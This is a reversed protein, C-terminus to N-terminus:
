SELSTVDVLFNDKADSWFLCKSNYLIQLIQWPLGVKKILKAVGGKRKLYEIFLSGTLWSGNKILERPYFLVTNKSRAGALRFM